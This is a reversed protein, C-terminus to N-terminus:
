LGDWPRPRRAWRIGRSIVSSSRNATSELCGISKPACWFPWTPKSRTLRFSRRDRPGANGRRRRHESQRLKLVGLRAVKLLWPRLSVGVRISDARRLLVLFTAQFADDAATRDGLERRCSALVAAGHASLIAEFAAEFMKDRRTLCEVLQAESLGAVSGGDFLRTLDQGIEATKSREM